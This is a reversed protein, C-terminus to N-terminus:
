RPIDAAKTVSFKLRDDYPVEKAVETKSAIRALYRQIQHDPVSLLSLLRWFAGL